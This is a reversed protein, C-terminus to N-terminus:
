LMELDTLLLDDSWEREERSVDGIFIRTLTKGGFQPLQTENQSSIPKYSIQVRCTIVSGCENDSASDLHLPGKRLQLELAIDRTDYCYKVMRKAVLYDVDRPGQPRRSLEKVACLVDPRARLIWQAKDVIARFVRQRAADWLNRTQRQRIGHATTPTKAHLVTMMSAMGKIYGSPTRELFGGPITYHVMGLFKLGRM